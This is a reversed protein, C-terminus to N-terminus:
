SWNSGNVLEVLNSCEKERFSTQRRPDADTLLAYKIVFIINISCGREGPARVPEWAFRVAYKLATGSETGIISTVVSHIIRKTAIFQVCYATHRPRSPTASLQHRSSSAGEFIRVWSAREQVIVIHLYADM